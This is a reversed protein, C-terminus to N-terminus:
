VPTPVSDGNSPLVVTINTSLAPLKVEVGGGKARIVDDKDMKLVFSSIIEVRV